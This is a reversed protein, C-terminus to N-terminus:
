LAFLPAELLLLLLDALPLSPVQLRTQEDLQPSVGADVPVCEANKVGVSAEQCRSAVAAEEAQESKLM